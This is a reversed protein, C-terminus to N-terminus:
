NHVFVRVVLDLAFKGQTLASCQGYGDRQGYGTAGSVTDWPASSSCQRQALVADDGLVAEPAGQLVELRLETRSDCSEEELFYQGMLQTVGDAEIVRALILLLTAVGVVRM